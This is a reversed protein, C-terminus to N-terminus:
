GPLASRVWESARRRSIPLSARHETRATPGRTAREYRRPARTDRVARPSPPRKVWADYGSRSIGLVRCMPAVPFTAQHDRM